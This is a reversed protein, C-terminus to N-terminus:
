HFLDDLGLPLLSSYKNNMMWNLPSPLPLEPSLSLAHEIWKLAQIPEDNELRYWQHVTAQDTVDWHIHLSFRSSEATSDQLGHEMMMNRICISM